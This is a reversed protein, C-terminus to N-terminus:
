GDTGGQVSKKCKANGKRDEYSTSKSVEFKAPLNNM